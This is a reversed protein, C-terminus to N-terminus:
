RPWEVLTAKKTYMRGVWVENNQGQVGGDAENGIGVPLVVAALGGHTIEGLHGAERDMVEERRGAAHGRQHSKEPTEAALLRVFEAIEPHVHRPRRQPHKQRRTNEARQHQYPLADRLIEFRVSRSFHEVRLGHRGGTAVALSGRLDYLFLRDRLSRGCRLFYNLFQTGIAASKEVGITGM